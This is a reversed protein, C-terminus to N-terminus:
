RHIILELNQLRGPKAFPWKTWLGSPTCRKRVARNALNTIPVGGRRGVLAMTTIATCRTATVEKGGSGAEGVNRRAGRRRHCWKDQTPVISGTIV